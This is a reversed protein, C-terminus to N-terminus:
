LPNVGFMISFIANAYVPQINNKYLILALNNKPKM